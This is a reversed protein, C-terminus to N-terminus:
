VRTRRRYLCSDDDLGNRRLATWAFPCAHVVLIQSRGVQRITVPRENRLADANVQRITSLEAAPLDTKPGTGEYTPFAYALSGADAKWLGGEVGQAPALAAQVVSILRQKFTDDIEGGSWSSLFFQYRDALDRCSRAVTDEARGLQASASQRYFELSSIRYRSGICCANAM